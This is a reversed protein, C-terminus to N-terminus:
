SSPVRPLSARFERAARPIRGRHNPREGCSPSAEERPLFHRRGRRPGLARIPWDHFSRLGHSEAICRRWKRGDNGGLRRDAPRYENRQGRTVITVRQDAARRNATVCRPSVGRKICICLQEAIAHHLHRAPLRSKAASQRRVREFVREATAHSEM